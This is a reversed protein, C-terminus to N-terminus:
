SAWSGPPDLERCFPLGYRLTEHEWDVGLHRDVRLIVRAHTRQHVRAHVAVRLEDIEQEEGAGVRREPVSLLIKKVM